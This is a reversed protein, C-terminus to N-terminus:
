LVVRHWTGSTTTVLIDSRAGHLILEKNATPKGTFIPVSRPLFRSHWYLCFSSDPLHKCQRSQSRWHSSRNDRSCFPKEHHTSYSVGHFKYPRKGCLGSVIYSLIQRKIKRKEAWTISNVGKFDILRWAHGSVMQDLYFLIPDKSIDITLWTIVSGSSNRIPPPM